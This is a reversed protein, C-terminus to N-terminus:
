PKAPVNAALSDTTGKRGGDDVSTVSPSPTSGALDSADAPTVDFGSGKLAGAIRRSM